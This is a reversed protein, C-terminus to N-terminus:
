RGGGNYITGGGAVYARVVAAAAARRVDQQVAIGRAALQEAWDVPKPGEDFGTAEVDATRAGCVVAHVGSWSVAGFCQACPAASTVLEYDGAAALDYTGLRRQALSLALIEAHAVSLGAAEVRNVGPAVLRGSGREFVAAGFPGGGHEASARALAVALDMRAEATWYIADPDGVVGAVWAPLEIHIATETV